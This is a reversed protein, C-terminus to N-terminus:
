KWTVATSDSSVSEGIINGSSDLAFMRLELLLGNHGKPLPLPFIILGDYKSYSTSTLVATQNPFEPKSTNEEAFVPTPLNVELKYSVANPHETWIFLNTEGGYIKDGDIPLVWSTRPVTNQITKEQGATLTFTNGERDTVDVTGTIVNITLTGDLGNQSYNSTFKATNSVRQGSACPVAVKINALATRVEYASSSSCNVTTTIQGKILTVIGTSEKTPNLVALTNQKVEIVSGDDRKVTTSSDALTLLATSDPVTGSTTPSALTTPTVSYVSGATKQVETKSESTSIPISASSRTLEINGNFQCSDEPEGFAGFSDDQGSGNLLLQNNTTNFSGTYTGNGRWFGGDHEFGNYALSANLQGSSNITGSFISTNTEESSSSSDLIFLFNGGTQYIKLDSIPEQGTGGSSDSCTDTFNMIGSITGSIDPVVVTAVSTRTLEINSNFQCSDEPEGFAGFSDDQGSGNLLLQNNATNFSGTYTGNGRWFGGDHEFGNYALSANLQGSSNITGSFISTNTEESSSSSDLIFLFNEGTQYIKLDSISEQGTGGSSDSCTDTFNMIGSTTGSIDPVVAFNISSYAMLLITLVLQKFM